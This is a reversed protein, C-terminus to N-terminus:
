LSLRRPLHLHFLLRLLRSRLDFLEPRCHRNRWLAHLLAQAPPQRCIQQRRSHLHPSCIIATAAAEHTHAMYARHTPSGCRLHIAASLEAPGTIDTASSQRKWALYHSADRKNHTKTVEARPTQVIQRAHGSWYLGFRQRSHCM